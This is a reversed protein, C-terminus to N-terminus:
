LMWVVPRLPESPRTSRSWPTRTSAIRASPRIRKSGISPLSNVM